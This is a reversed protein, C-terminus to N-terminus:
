IGFTILIEKTGESFNCDPLLLLFYIGPYPPSPPGDCICATFVHTPKLSFKLFSLISSFDTKKKNGGHVGIRTDTRDYLGGQWPPGNGTGGPGWMKNAM